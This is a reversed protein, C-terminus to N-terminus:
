KVDEADSYVEIGLTAALKNAADDVMPSVVILRDAKRQHRKEYLRAKREFAYLEPKSISSKLELILLTGNKIVIDLEVQDPRGFVEGTDDFENVNIVQVGFSQELIGALANRFSRESSLGWRAGLAGVTRDHRKAMAMIEEHVKDFEKHNEEWKRNQEEQMRAHEALHEQWRLEQAKREEQWRREQAEKEEKWMRAQAEKEEKWKRAQEEKEERWKLEQAEWKRMQEERDRRLEELMRDFRSETQQRDAFDGRLMRALAARFSADEEIWCPLKDLLEQKVEELIM